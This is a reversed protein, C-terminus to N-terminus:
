SFVERSGPPLFHRTEPQQESACVHDLLVVAVRVLLLLKERLTKIDDELKQEKMKWEAKHVDRALDKELERSHRKSEM